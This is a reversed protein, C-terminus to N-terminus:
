KNSDSDAARKIRYIHRLHPVAQILLTTVKEYTNKTPPEEGFHVVNRSERVADSWIKADRLLNLDVKSKKVVVELLNKHEQEYTKLVKRIKQTLSRDRNQLLDILKVSKKEKGKNRFVASFAIGLEIWSGEVAKTLMALCPTFLENRFCSVADRLAEEVEPHINPIGIEGIYLDSDELYYHEEGRWSPAICIKIPFVTSYEEFRLSGSTSGSGNSIVYRVTPVENHLNRSLPLLIGSYILGWVAEVAALKWSLSESVELLEPSPDSSRDWAVKEPMKAKMKELFLTIIDRPDGILNEVIFAKAIVVKQRNVNVNESIFNKAEKKNM